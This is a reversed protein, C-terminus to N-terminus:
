TQLREVVGDRFCFGALTMLHKRREAPTFTLVSRWTKVRETTAEISCFSGTNTIGEFTWRWDRQSFEGNSPVQLPWWETCLAITRVTDIDTMSTPGRCCPQWLTCRQSPRVNLALKFTHSMIVTVDTLLLLFHDPDRKNSVIHQQATTGGTRKFSPDDRLHCDSKRWWARCVGDFWLVTHAKSM